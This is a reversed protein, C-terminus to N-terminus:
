DASQICVCVCVCRKCHPPPLKVTRHLSSIFISVNKRERKSDMWEIKNSFDPDLRFRLVFVKGNMWDAAPRVTPVFTDIGDWRGTLPCVCAASDSPSAATPPLLWNCLVQRLLWLSHTSKELACNLGRCGWWGRLHFNYQLLKQQADSLFIFSSNGSYCM